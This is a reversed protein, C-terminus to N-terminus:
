TLFKLPTVLCVAKRPSSIGNKRNRGKENCKARFQRRRDERYRHDSSERQNEFNGKRSGIERIRAEKRARLNDAENEKRALNM